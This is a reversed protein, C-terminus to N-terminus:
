GVGGAEPAAAPLARAAGATIAATRRGELAAALASALEQARARARAAGARFDRRAWVYGGAAVVGGAAIGVPGVLAMATALATLGGGVGLLMGKIMFHGVALEDLEFRVRVASRAGAPTVSVEARATDVRGRWGFLRGVTRAEGLHRTHARVVGLLEEFDREDVPADVVREVVIETSAGLFRSPADEPAGADLSAAARRIVAPDIGAEAAVQELEALSLGGSPQAADASQQQIEVAAKLILRVERDTYRRADPATPPTAM